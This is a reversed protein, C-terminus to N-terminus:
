KTQRRGILRDPKPPGELLLAVAPMARKTTPARLSWRWTLASVGDPLDSYTFFDYKRQFYNCVSM